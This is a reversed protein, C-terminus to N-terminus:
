NITPCQVLVGLIKDSLLIWLVGLLFYITSIKLAFSIKKPFGINSSNNTMSQWQRWKSDVLGVTKGM